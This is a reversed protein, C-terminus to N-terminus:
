LQSVLLFMFRNATCSTKDRNQDTMAAKKPRRTWAETVALGKQIYALIRTRTMKGRICSLQTVAGEATLKVALAAVTAVLIM